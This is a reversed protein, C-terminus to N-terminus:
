PSCYVYAIHIVFIHLESQPTLTVGPISALEDFPTSNPDLTVVLTLIPTLTLVLTLPSHLWDMVGDMFIAKLTM